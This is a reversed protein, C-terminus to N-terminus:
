PKLVRRVGEEPLPVAPVDPGWAGLVVGLPRQQTSVAPFAHPDPVWGLAPWM